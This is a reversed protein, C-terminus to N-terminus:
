RVSERLTAARARRVTLAAVCTSAAVLVALVVGMFLALRGADLTAVVRPTRIDGIVGLTVTRVVIYQAVSGALIGAVGAAGLVACLEVFVARLIQPRRVGVVRMSAADRRRAPMQVALNVGLGALALAVSALAAVLYLNLSLAYADQDLVQKAAAMSTGSSAGHAILAQTVSSPTDGRALVYVDTSEAPISQDRSMMTYDILLGRPGLFPMSDTVAVPMIPLGELADTKAVLHDGSGGVLKTAETRGMLVPRYAPVDSPTIGGIGVSDGTDVRLDLRPGHQSIRTSGANLGLPSIVPRWASAELMRDVASGDETFSLLSATGSLTTSTTAPGGVLLADVLCGQACFAVKTTATSEGPPFPGFFMTRSEGAATKVQLSLGLSGSGAQVQNDLTLSLRQGQVSVGPHRPGLRQAVAAADLGPTWTDPWVGVRALRSTDLVLKEGYPGQNVVGAAMLWRGQPDLERTLAVTQDLSGASRYSQDAGVQTAATSRRWADAAGYVGAAFVAIALAATLPLIVLSGERRRSVARSSVFGTVGPRTATRRSWWRALQVVGAAVVLGTAGALLLPLVLDTTRPASRGSATLSAAVVVVSAVVLAAKGVVAWRGSRGPRRVGALQASLPERLAGAVALVSAAAAAGLVLIGAVVSEAGLTVPVGGILWLRSLWVTTAYGLVFGVPTAVLLLLVPEALGFAWMQRASMGRLSGLALEQRRQDAAAGLLRALLALAVLVLSVVAPTVTNRATDRNQDIEALVFQLGNDPTERFRGDRLSKLQGPLDVVAQRARRVDDVTIAPSVTLFRDIHFTLSEPSLREITAADTVLPGPTFLTGGGAAGAPQPASSTLRSDDFWFDAPHNPLSYLGVVRLKGPYGAFPLRDGVEVHASAAASGRLLVEGPRRPCSGTLVLHECADPKATLVASGTWPFGFLHQVTDPASEVSVTARGFLGSLRDEGITAARRLADSYGTKQGAPLQYTVSVGTYVPPAEQLRTVLFSQASSTQYAPGVVASAVAVAALVFAGFTLTARSRLGRLLAAILTGMGIRRGM